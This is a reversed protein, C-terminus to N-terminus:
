EQAGGQLEQFMQLLLANQFQLQEIQAQAAELQQLHQQKVITVMNQATAAEAQAARAEAQATILRTDSVLLKQRLDKNEKDLNSVQNKLHQAWIVATSYPNNDPNPSQFHRNQM